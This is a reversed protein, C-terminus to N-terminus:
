DILRFRSPPITVEFRALKGHAVVERTKMGSAQFLERALLMDFGDFSTRSYGGASMNGELTSERSEGEFVVVIGELSKLISVDVRLDEPCARRLNEFVAHFAGELLDDALVEVGELRPSIRLDEAGVSRVAVDVIRALPQWMSEMTGIMQYAKMFDMHRQIESCKDAVQRIYDRAGQEKCADLALESFFLMVSLENQIENFLLHNFMDIKRNARRLEKLEMMHIETFRARRLIDRWVREYLEPPVEGKMQSLFEDPPVYHPNWCVTGRIAVRPHVRLADLLTRSDFETEDYQCLLRAKFDPFLTNVRAEYEILNDSGEVEPSAWSMEGTGRLGSYGEALSRTEFESFSKLVRNVDFRGHDVYFEDKSLILFDREIDSPGINPHNSIAEVIEEKPTRDCVYVCKEGNMFGAALFPMVMSLQEDERGFMSCFHGSGPTRFVNELVPDYNYRVPHGFEQTM